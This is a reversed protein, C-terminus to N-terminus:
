IIELDEKSKLKKDAEGNWLVFWVDTPPKTPKGKHNIWRGKEIIVGIKGEDETNQRGRVRVGRRFKNEM